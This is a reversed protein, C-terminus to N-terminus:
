QLWKSNVKLINKLWQKDEKTLDIKNWLEKQTAEPLSNFAKSIDGYYGYKTAKRVSDMGELKRLPFYKKLYYKRIDAVKEEGGYIKSIFDCPNTKNPALKENLKQSEVSNYTKEQVVNIEEFSTADDKKIFENITRNYNYEEQITKATFENLVDKKIITFLPECERKGWECPAKQFHSVGGQKNILFEVEV